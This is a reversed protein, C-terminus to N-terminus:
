MVDHFRDYNGHNIDKEPGIFGYGVSLCPDHKTPDYDGREGCHTVNVIPTVAKDVLDKGTEDLLKAVNM